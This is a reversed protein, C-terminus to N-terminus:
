NTKPSSMKVKIKEQQLDDKIIESQIIGKVNMAEQLDEHKLTLREFLGQKIVGYNIQRFIQTNQDKLDQIDAKLDEARLLQKGEQNETEIGEAIKLM